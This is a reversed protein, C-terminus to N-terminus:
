YSTESRLGALVDDIDAFTAGHDVLKSLDGHVRIRGTM